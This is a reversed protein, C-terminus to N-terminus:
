FREFSRARTKHRRRELMAADGISRRELARQVHACRECSPTRRRDEAVYRRRRRREVRRRRVAAAPRENADATVTAVM